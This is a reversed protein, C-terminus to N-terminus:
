MYLLWYYIVWSQKLSLNWVFCPMCEFCGSCVCFLRAGLPPLQLQHTNIWLYANCSVVSLQMCCYFFIMFIHQVVAAAAPLIIYLTQVTFGQWWQTYLDCHRIGLLLVCFIDSVFTFSPYVKNETMYCYSEFIIPGSPQIYPDINQFYFDKVQQTLKRILTYFIKNQKTSFICRVFM